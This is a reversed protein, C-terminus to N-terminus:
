EDRGGELRGEEARHRFQQAVLWGKLPRLLGVTLALTLPIWLVAHVWYPPSWTFEVWLVLGVIIFGAIMMIFVAPGDGADAFGYDLGCEPCAPALTLFGDYLRGKGCRPCCARLGAEISSPMRKPNDTM